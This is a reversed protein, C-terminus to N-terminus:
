AAGGTAKAIAARAQAIAAKNQEYFAVQVYATGKDWDHHLKVLLELSALLDPAAAILLADAKKIPRTLHTNGATVICGDADDENCHWPKTTHTM